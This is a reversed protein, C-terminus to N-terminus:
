VLNGDAEVINSNSNKKSILSFPVCVHIVTYYASDTIIVVRKSYLRSLSLFDSVAMINIHFQETVGM